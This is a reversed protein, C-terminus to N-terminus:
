LILIEVGARDKDVTYSNFVPILLSVNDDEIWGHKVMLDQVTQAPNIYDFLHKTKRIFRFEIRYPPKRLALHERFSEAQANWHHNSEKYYKQCAKSPLSTRGFNIRTNKSSPVHGPIYFMPPDPEMM